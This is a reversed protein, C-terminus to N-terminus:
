DPLLGDRKLESLLDEHRVTAENRREAAVALDALDELLERYEAIPLIVGTKKGAEDTVFQPHVQTAVTMM